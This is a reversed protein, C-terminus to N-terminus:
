PASGLRPRNSRSKRVIAAAGGRRFAGQQGAGSPARSGLASPRGAVCRRPRGAARRGRRGRHGEGGGRRGALAGPQPHVAEVIADLRGTTTMAVVAEQILISAHPGVIHTGLLEGGPGALVKALGNEGLAIGMGTHRLEHRGVVYPVGEAILQEETRGAAAVQPASFVAHPITGYDVPEWREEFLGRALQRAQRVAVHKLPLPGAIDGFAWVGEASTRLLEDIRIQGSADVEM